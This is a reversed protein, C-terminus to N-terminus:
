VKDAITHRQIAKLTKEFVLMKPETGHVSDAKLVVRAVYINGCAIM